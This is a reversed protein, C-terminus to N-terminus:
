VDRVRNVIFEMIPANMPHYNDENCMDAAKVYEECATEYSYCLASPIICLLLVYAYYILIVYGFEFSM